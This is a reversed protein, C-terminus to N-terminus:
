SRIIVGSQRRDSLRRRRHRHDLDHEQHIRHRREAKQRPNRQAQRRLLRLARRDPLLVDRGHQRRRRRHRHDLDHEQHIRHRGSLKRGLTGNPKVDYFGYLGDTRYFFMEDTNDGDVDIGTISTMNKTYGTGGSLKRGLTGNPKVDYFGYLGDTRYFFMEDTNDGDVDIGTISTMNKTYGTGGSLKRGLTGNPKVDYFGYLGDTRYFFMEDTNDGDVDIGTISTMNKTYGTGGSLKRGLTGNPKVDYFGYLGDTRYFFMEDGPSPTGGTASTTYFGKIWNIHPGVPQAIPDWYNSSCGPEGFSTIGYITRVPGDTNHPSDYGVLPGGSDGPCAWSSVGGFCFDEYGSGAVWAANCFGTVDGTSDSEVPVAAGQLASPIPSDDYTQGWGVVVLPQDIVPWAANASLVPLSTSAVPADLKVMALDVSSHDSGDYGPHVQVQAIRRETGTYWLDAGVKIRYSSDVTDVCHAATLVWQAHVLSGSCIYSGGQTLSVVWGPNSVPDGNYVFPQVTPEEAPAEIVEAVETAGAPDSPLALLVTLAVLWSALVRMAPRFGSTALRIKGINM